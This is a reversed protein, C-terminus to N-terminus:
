VKSLAREARYEAVAAVKSRKAATADAALTNWATVAEDWKGEDELQRAATWQARLPDATRAPIPRLASAARRKDLVKGNDARKVVFRTQKQFAGDPEVRHVAIVKVRSGSVTTFYVGGIMVDAIKM